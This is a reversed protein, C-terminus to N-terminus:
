LACFLANDKGVMLKLDICVHIIIYLLILLLLLIVEHCFDYFVYKFIDFATFKMEHLDCPLYERSGCGKKFWITFLLTVHKWFESVTLIVFLM